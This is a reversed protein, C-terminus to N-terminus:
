LIENPGLFSSDCFMSRVMEFSSDLMTVTQLANRLGNEIFHPYSSVMEEIVSRTVILLM